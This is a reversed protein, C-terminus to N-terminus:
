ELISKVHGNRNLDEEVHFYSVMQCGEATYIADGHAIPDFIQMKWKTNGNFTSAHTQVTRLSKKFHIFQLVKFIM